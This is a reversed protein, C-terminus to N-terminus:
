RGGERQTGKMQEMGGGWGRELEESNRGKKGKFGNTVLNHGVRKRGWPSYGM